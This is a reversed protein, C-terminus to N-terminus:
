CKYSFVFSVYFILKGKSHDPLKCFWALSKNRQNMTMKEWQTYSKYFPRLGHQECVDQKILKLRAIVHDPSIGDWDSPTTSSATATLEDLGERSDGLIDEEANDDDDDNNFLDNNLSPQSSSASLNNNSSTSHSLHVLTSAAVPTLEPQQVAVPLTPQQQHQIPVTLTPQQQHQIPVMLTPQQQHQILQQAVVPLTPQQQDLIPQQAVMPLPSQQQHQIPKQQGLQESPTKAAMILTKPQSSSGNGRSSKKRSSRSKKTVSPSNFINSSPTTSMDGVLVSKM